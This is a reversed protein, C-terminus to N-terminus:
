NLVLSSIIELSMFLPLCLDPTDSFYCFFLALVLSRLDLM